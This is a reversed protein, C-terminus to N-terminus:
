RQWSLRYLRCRAATLQPRPSSSPLNLCLKRDGACIAVRVAFKDADKLKEVQNVQLFEGAAQKEQAPRTWLMRDAHVPARARWSLSLPPVSEPSRKDSRM